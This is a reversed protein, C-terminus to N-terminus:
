RADREIAARGAVSLIRRGAGGLGIGGCFICSVDVEPSERAGAPRSRVWLKFCPSLGQWHNRRLAPIERLVHVFIPGVAARARSEWPPSHIGIPHISEGEIEGGVEDLGVLM